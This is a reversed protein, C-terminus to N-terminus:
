GKSLYIYLSNLEGLAACQSDGVLAAAQTACRTGSDLPPSFVMESARGTTVAIGGMIVDCLGANIVEALRDRLM